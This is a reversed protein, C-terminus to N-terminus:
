PGQILSLHPGACSPPAEPHRALWAEFDAIEMPRAIHFGQAQDCRLIELLDWIEQNEVGEAVVELGLNHDLDITSRVIIAANDNELMDMVFSKDIKIRNVPMQKLYALSSFGTGYDDVSLRVGLRSLQGLIRNAREPNKMMANETIELELCHGPLRHRRLLSDVHEAIDSHDLNWTSLNVAVPIDWRRARWEACQALARDLVWLTLPRILATQEATQILYEPSVNHWGPWRLLVEVGVLRSDAVALKPHFALTLEGEDIAKRLEGILSLRAVSHRDADADYVSYTLGEHKAVYMAVDARKILTAVDHGHEPHSAIGISTGVLLRHDQRPIPREICESIRRAMAEAEEVGTDPLLVAFEDGGLRAVTDTRRLLGSLRQAVERLVEDGTDHGLTDNIEKFRDLDLMMLCFSHGERRARSLAQELRDHLLARNPLGTLDDHLTQHRLARQREEIRAQMQEFAQVLDRAEISDAQPLPQHTDGDAVAKMARTLSGIPGLVTRQFYVYGVGIVLFAIGALLWTNQILRQAVQAWLAVEARAANDLKIEISELLKWIEAYLPQIRNAILPIDARWETSAQQKRFTEFGAHWTEALDRMGALSESGQLGLRGDDALAQLKDLLALVQRYYLDIDHRADLQGRQSDGYIGARRILYLRFAGVMQGWAHQARTFLRRAGAGGPESEAESLALQVLTNFRVNAPGLTNDVIEIAPFLQQLDSRIAMLRRAERDLERIAAELRTAQAALDEERIWDLAKLRRAHRGADLIHAQVERRAADSPKLLHSQLAYETAWVASRVARSHLAAESRRTISEATAERASEVYEHVVLASTLITLVVGLAVLLYRHRLSHVRSRARPEPRDTM